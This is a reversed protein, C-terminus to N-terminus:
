PKTAPSNEESFDNRKEFPLVNRMTYGYPYLPTCSDSRVGQDLDQPNSDPIPSQANPLNMDQALENSLGKVVMALGGATALNESYNSNVRQQIPITGGARGEVNSYITPDMDDASPEAEQLGRRDTFRGPNDNAYRYPNLGGGLGIPDAELYRGLNPMYDRNLNYYFGTEVDFNQGPLRVNQTTLTGTTVGTTGFPQYTTHWVVAQSSNTIFQPAGVRDPHVYYLTGSTGGPIFQGIPRGHVYIYDTITGNQNEELLAGDQGYTYYIPYSGSPTKSFRKGFDDYVFSAAVPSGTVSSLRNAVNYSFSASSGSNAPPTSTINGNANTTVSTSGIASLRNTGSTYSYNTTTSGLTQTLRNGVKDYTWSYSGYGGTGSAASTLRNIIDYGFTQSNASTVADTVSTVNNNNNLPYTLNQLTGSTGSLTINSIRYDRDVNYPGSIGNAYSIYSMPGFPDNGLWAVVETSSGPPIADVENIRGAADRFYSVNLGSPYSIDSIRGAGDYAYYSTLNTSGTGWRALQILNGREDYDFSTLGSPDTRTALRGIPFGYVYASSDYTYTVNQTSDAPFSKTLLRDLADYALNVTVSLADVKKTLNSDGDFYFVTTGSDPSAQQIANGFGSYVYATSNTNADKVNTPRDHADYTLTTVGSNPDTSTGLRNLADYTNTTSNSFGDKATLVNGNPDYATTITQGRGGTDVLVRGLADFSDSHHKYDGGSNDFYIASTVDGMADLSYNIYNGLADTIKIIRHATDFSPALYSSDPLTTKTLNGAADYTYSTTFTGGSGSVASSLLWQRPSYTLTTTASNPDVITEPLGGATYSTIHTVHSLADTVSTLAGSSSYGFSTTNGNPTKVSALLYDGWTNTWTRTQGSTSYPTTTTTTDTLKRTLLEGSGDYTFSTTVGPTTISDPLHVWTSDYAITTTRAVASGVGENVTTPLGHSNNTYTTQNGNWDTKSALYGNSDYTFTRTAAATTSTAARSIQTVKQANQLTSYSYTDVVGLANTVTRSGTTDNYAVSTVNATPGTGDSSTLARGYADYTWALFGNGNEDTVGTLLSHLTPNGYVYTLSTAPSTPYTVSTLNYGASTSTYGYDITNDPTTISTLLNNSNYTLTISRSYSDTVSTLYGTTNYSLTRTYGNRAKISTLLAQVGNAEGYENGSANVYTEVTDNPDTLTWTTGSLTLTYDSDTDTTWVGGTLTFTIGQGDARQALVVTPSFIWIFRDYTSRWNIGLMGSYTGRSNYYRTFSLRNAGATKYDTQHYFMNGSPVNIPDGVSTSGINNTTSDDSSGSNGDSDISTSDDDPQCCPDGIQTVPQVGGPGPPSYGSPSNSDSDFGSPPNFSIGLSM